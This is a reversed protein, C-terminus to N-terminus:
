KIYTLEFKKLLFHFIIYNVFFLLGLVVGSVYDSFIMIVPPILVMLKIIWKTILHESYFEKLRIIREKTEEITRDFFSIMNRDYLPDLKYKFDSYRKFSYFLLIVLVQGIFLLWLYIYALTDLIFIPYVFSLVTSLVTSLVFFFPFLLREKIIMKIEDLKM